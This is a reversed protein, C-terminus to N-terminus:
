SRGGAILMVIGIFALSALASLSITFLGWWVTLGLSVTLSAIYVRPSIMFLSSIGLFLMIGAVEQDTGFLGKGYDLTETLLTFTEGDKIGTLSIEYINGESDEEFECVMSSAKAEETIDCVTKSNGTISGKTVKLNAKAGADSEHNVTCQYGTVTENENRIKSCSYDFKAKEEYFDSRIQPNVRFTRSCPNSNCTFIQRDTEKLTKGDKTILYKYYIENIHMHTTAIGQSDTETKAVTIYSNSGLFYRM